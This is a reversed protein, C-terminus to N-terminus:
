IYAKIKKTGAFITRIQKAAEYPSFAHDYYYFWDITKLEDQSVDKLMHHDRILDEYDKLSM